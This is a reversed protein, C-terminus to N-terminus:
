IRKPAEVQRGFVKVIISGDDKWGQNQPLEQTNPALVTRKSQMSPVCHNPSAQLMFWIGSHPRRPPDVVRVDSSPGASADDHFGPPFHFPRPFYSVALHHSSLPFSSSSSSPMTFPITPALAWNSHSHHPAFGSASHPYQLQQFLLNSPPPPPPPPPSPHPPPQQPYSFNLLPAVPGGLQPPAPPPLLPRCPGSNSHPLLDLEVPSSSGGLEDAERQCGISLQLWGGDKEQEQQNIQHNGKSGGCGGVSASNSRSQDDEGMDSGLLESERCINQNYYYGEVELRSMGTAGGGFGGYTQQQQDQKSLDHHTAPLMTM